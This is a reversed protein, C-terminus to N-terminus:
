EISTEVIIAAGLSQEFKIETVDPWVKFVRDEATHFGCKFPSIASM